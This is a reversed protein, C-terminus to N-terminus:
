HSDSKGLRKEMYKVLLSLLFTMSWYVLSIVLYPETYVANAAGATRAAYALDVLGIASGLSSDKLIAIANNGLPPLMRRFAQPLIVKRMTSSYSMGLSRAAEMQGKDISQIGARFIESIYAGANLTIALVCSIFAGYQVRLYRATEPSILYDSVLVGERPHLLFPMIVFYMVMIQVFLPTGRFASVYIKIPWKVLISLTYKYIGHKVQAVRGLGLILGWFTGFVVCVLTCTITMIAGDIFLPLYDRIVEWNFQM